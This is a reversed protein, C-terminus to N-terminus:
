TFLVTVMLHGGTSPPPLGTMLLEMSFLRQDGIGGPGLRLHAVRTPAGDVQGRCGNGHVVGAVEDDGVAPRLRVVQLRATLHFALAPDGYRFLM